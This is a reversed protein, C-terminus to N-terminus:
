ILTITITITTTATTTTTTTISYHPELRTKRRLTVHERLECRSMVRSNREEILLNNSNRVNYAVRTRTLSSSSQM